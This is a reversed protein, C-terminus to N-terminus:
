GFSVATTTGNCHRRGPSLCVDVNTMAMGQTFLSVDHSDGLSCATLLGPAPLMTGASVVCTLGMAAIRDFSVYKIISVHAPALM